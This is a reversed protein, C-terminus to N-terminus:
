FEFTAFNSVVPASAKANLTAVAASLSANKSAKYEESRKKTDALLVERDQMAKQVDAVTLVSEDGFDYPNPSAGTIIWEKIKREFVNVSAEGFATEEIREVKTTTHNIKGWIKLLVPNSSSADLSEFFDMGKENKVMFTAPILAYRFNFGAGRVTCYDKAINREPDAEIHTVATILFDIEFKNRENSFKNILTVFSGEQILQSVLTDDNTYFDNVAFAADCRVKQASEKGVNIWTNDSDIIAKLVSYTNNVGGSKTTPTVYTFHIPVVNLGEEDVVVDLTGNIFEKGYNASAQNQVTKVTLSHQYVYGEVVVKNLFNKKM